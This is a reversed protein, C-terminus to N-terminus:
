LDLKKLLTTLNEINVQINAKQIDKSKTFNMTYYYEHDLARALNFYCNNITPVDAKLEVIKSNDPMFILNTLGAGHNSVLIGTKYMLKRQEEFSLDEFFWTEFGLEELASELEIENIVNRRQSKKRSIYVKKIKVNEQKDYDRFYSRVLKIQDPDCESAVIRSPVILENIKYSGYISYPHVKFPFIKFTESIYNLDLYFFPILVPYDKWYAKASICRPIFDTLWHYYGNSWTDLAWIGKEFEGDINWYFFSKLRAKLRTYFKVGHTHVYDELIIRNKYLYRQIILANKMKLLHIEDINGKLDSSFHRLDKLNFNEPPVRVIEKKKSIVVKM